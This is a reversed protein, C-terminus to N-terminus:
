LIKEYSAMRPAAPDYGDLGDGRRPRKSWPRVFVVAMAGDAEMVVMAELKISTNTTKEYVNFALLYEVNGFADQRTSYFDVDLCTWELAPNHSAVKAMVRRSMDAPSIPPNPLRTTTGDVFMAHPDAADWLADILARPVGPLQEVAVARVRELRLHRRRQTCWWSRAFGAVLVAGILMAVYANNNSTM